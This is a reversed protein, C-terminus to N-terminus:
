HLHLDCLGSVRDCLPLLRPPIKLETIMTLVGGAPLVFPRNVMPNFGSFSVIPLVESPPFGAGPTLDAISYTADNGQFFVTTTGDVELGSYDPVPANANLPKYGMGTLSLNLPAGTRNHIDVKEVIRSGGILPSAGDVTYVAGGTVTGALPGTAYGLMPGQAHIQEEGVHADIHFHDVDVLNWPSSPYVTIARGGVTWELRRPLQVPDSATYLNYIPPDVAVKLSSNRDTLTFESAVQATASVAAAICAAAALMSKTKM